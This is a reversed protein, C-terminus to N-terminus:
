SSKSLICISKSLRTKLLLIPYYLKLNELKVSSLKSDEERTTIHQQTNDETAHSLTDILLSGVEISEQINQISDMNTQFPM